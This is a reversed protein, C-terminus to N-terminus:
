AAAMRTVEEGLQKAWSKVSESEGPGMDLWTTDYPDQLAAPALPLGDFHCGWTGNVFSVAPPEGALDDEEGVPQTEVPWQSNMEDPKQTEQPPESTSTGAIPKGAQREPLGAERRILRRFKPPQHFPPVVPLSRCPTAVRRKKGLRPVAKDSSGQNATVSAQTGSAKPRDDPSAPSSVREASAGPSAVISTTDEPYAITAPLEDHDGIEILEGLYPVLELSQDDSGPHLGPAAGPPNVDLAQQDLDDHLPMSVSDAVVLGPPQKPAIKLVNNRISFALEGRHTVLGLYYASDCARSVMLALEPPVKGRVIGGRGIRLPLPNGSSNSMAPFM